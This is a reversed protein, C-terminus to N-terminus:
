QVPTLPLKGPASADWQGQLHPATTSSKRCYLRLSRECLHIEALVITSPKLMQSHRLKFPIYM